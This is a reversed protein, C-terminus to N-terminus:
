AAVFSAAPPLTEIGTWDRVYPRELSYGFRDAIGGAIGLVDIAAPDGTGAEWAAFYKDNQDATAEHPTNRALGLADQVRNLVTDPQRMYDEYRLVLVNKLYPLDALMRAHGFSWHAILEALTTKAWKQTAGAVALPHRVIVVFQSEPFLAQFYRMRVTSPPSKELLIQKGMDWRAGWQRLLREFDRPALAAADAETLHSLPDFAFRGPGGFSRGPEFVDQIHQGEDEPVGTDHFGSIQPHERLQRHLISTGSRHLGAIFLFTKGEIVPVSALEKLAPLDRRTRRSRMKM